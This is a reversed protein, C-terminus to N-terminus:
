LFHLRSSFFFVVLQTHKHTACSELGAKGQAYGRLATLALTQGLDSECNSRLSRDEKLSKRDDTVRFNLTNLTVCM